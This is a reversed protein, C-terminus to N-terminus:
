LRGQEDTILGTYWCTFDNKIEADNVNYTTPSVLAGHTGRKIGQMREKQIRDYTQVPTAVVECQLNDPNM